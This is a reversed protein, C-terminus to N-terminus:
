RTSRCTASIASTAVDGAVCNEEAIAPPERAIRMKEPRLALWVTDGPKRMRRQRSRAATRGDASRDVIRRAEVTLVRGEILNVEGIFDAVWRSNPQEYIEPPTRGARAQRSEDRRHPRRGDDGGGPRPHRDRLDTRAKAQLDMLEFQTEERLKNDLAALPEDLLLVRPRKALSRALAVRQRQGGSLQDPKRQASAKSSCWRWCRARRAGRDRREALRGAEARVRRQRRCDSPSVARLEPVDHQGAAPLPPM